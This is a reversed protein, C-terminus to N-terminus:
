NCVLCPSPSSQDVVSVLRTWEVVMEAMVDAVLWRVECGSRLVQVWIAVEEAAVLEEWVWQGVELEELQAMWPQVGMLPPGRSMVPVGRPAAVM